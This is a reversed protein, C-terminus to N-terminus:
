LRPAHLVCAKKLGGAAADHGFQAAASRGRGFRSGGSGKAGGFGTGTHGAKRAARMVQGVFSKPKAAGRGNDRNRGPRIRLDNERRTM